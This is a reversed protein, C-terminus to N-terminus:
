LKAPRILLVNRLDHEIGDNRLFKPRAQLLMLVLHSQALDTRLDDFGLAQLRRIFRPFRPRLNAISQEAAFSRRVVREVDDATVSSGASRDQNHSPNEVVCRISVFCGGDAICGVRDASGHVTWTEGTPLDDRYGDTGDEYTTVVVEASM